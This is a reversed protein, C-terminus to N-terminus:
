IKRLWDFGTGTLRFHDAVLKRQIFSHACHQTQLIEEKADAAEDFTVFTRVMM